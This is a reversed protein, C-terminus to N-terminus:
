AKGKQAVSSGLQAVSCGLFYIEGGGGWRLKATVKPLILVLFLFEPKPCFDAFTYYLERITMNIINCIGWSGRGAWRVKASGKPSNYLSFV